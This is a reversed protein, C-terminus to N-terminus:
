ARYKELFRRKIPLFSNIPINRLKRVNISAKFFYYVGKTYENNKFFEKSVKKYNDIFIRRREEDDLSEIEEEFKKLFSEKSNRLDMPDPSSYGIKSFLPEKLCLIKGHRLLRLLLEWDQHRSFKEDFGGIKKLSKNKLILASCGGIRIGKGRLMRYVMQSTDEAIIEGKDEKLHKESKYYKHWTFCGFYDKEEHNKMFQVQKKIKQRHFFDDDDLFAIFQGEAINIGTNRAGAGGKEKENENSIIKSSNRVYEPLQNGSSDNIVIIQINEYSQKEVSKIARLLKKNRNYTPIIVSVKPKEEM